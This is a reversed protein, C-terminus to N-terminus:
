IYSGAGVSGSRHISLFLIPSHPLVREHFPMWLNSKVGGSWEDGSRALDEADESYEIILWPKFEADDAFPLKAFICPTHCRVKLNYGHLIVFTSQISRAKPQAQVILWGLIAPAPTKGKAVDPM